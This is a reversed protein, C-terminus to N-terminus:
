GTVRSTRVEIPGIRNPSRRVPRIRRRVLASTAARNWATPSQAWPIPTRSGTPETAAPVRGGSTAHTAVPPTARPGMLPGPM